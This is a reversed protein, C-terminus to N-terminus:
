AVGLRVAPCQRVCRLDLVGPVALLRCADLYGHPNSAIRNAIARAEQRRRHPGAIIFATGPVNYGRPTRVIRSLSLSM